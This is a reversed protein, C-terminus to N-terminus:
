RRGRGLMRAAGDAMRVIRRSTLRDIFERLARNEERLTDVERELGTAQADAASVRRDLDAIALGIARAEAVAADDVPVDAV